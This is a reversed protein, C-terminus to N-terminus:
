RPQAGLRDLWRLPPVRDIVKSFSWVESVATLAVLIAASTLKAPVSLNLALGAGLVGGLLNAGADGLMGRERLDAPLWAVSAGAISASIPLYPVMGGIVAIPVWALMFAKVARGPRLDLLNMFNAALAVLAADIFADGLDLEWLAGATLGVAAGGLIKLVGPTVVGRALASLHGRFGKPSGAGALDDISGLVFMGLVVVAIGINDASLFTLGIASAGLAPMEAASPKALAVMSLTGEALLFAGAIVAGGVPPLETGRFNTLTLATGPRTLSQRLLASLGAALVALLAALLVM